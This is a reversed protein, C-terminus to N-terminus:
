QNSTLTSIATFKTKYGKRLWKNQLVERATPRSTPDLQLMDKILQKLDEDIVKGKLAPHIKFFQEQHKVNKSSLFRYLPDRQIAVKFPPSKFLSTFLM